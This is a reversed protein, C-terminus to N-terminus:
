PRAPAFTVPCPLYICSLEASPRAMAITRSRRARHGQSPGLGPFGQPRVQHLLHELQVVGDAV